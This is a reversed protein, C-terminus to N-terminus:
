RSAKDLHCVQRKEQYDMDGGMCSSRLNPSGDHSSRPGVTVLYSKASVESEFIATIYNNFEAQWSKRAIESAM